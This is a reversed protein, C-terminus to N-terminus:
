EFSNGLACLVQLGKKEIVYGGSLPIQAFALTALRLSADRETPPSKAALLSFGM